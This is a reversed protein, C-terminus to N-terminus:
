PWRCFWCCPPLRSPHDQSRSTTTPLRPSRKFPSPWPSPFLAYNQCSQGTHRNALLGNFSRSSTKLLALLLITTVFRLLKSIANLLDSFLDITALSQGFSGFTCGQRLGEASHFIDIVQDKDMLVLLSPNEYLFAVIRWVLKLSQCAYLKTLFVARSLTNFANVLDIKLAIWTPNLELWAQVSHRVSECGGPAGVGRHIPLLIKRLPKIVLDLAISTALKLFVEACAIPRFKVDQFSGDLCTHFSKLVPILRCVLLHNRVDAPVDGCLLANVLSTLGALCEPDQALCAVVAGTIGSLGGAAGNDLKKAFQLVTAETVNPRPADPPLPPMAFESYQPVHLNHIQPLFDASFAPVQEILEPAYHNQKLVDSAKSLYGSKMHNMISRAQKNTCAPLPNSDQFDFVLPASLPLTPDSDHVLAKVEQRLADMTARIQNDLAKIDAARPNPIRVSVPLVSSSLSLLSIISSTQLDADQLHSDKAKDAAFASLHQRAADRIL